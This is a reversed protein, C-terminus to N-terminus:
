SKGSRPSRRPTVKNVDPESLDELQERARRREPGHELGYALWFARIEQDAQDAWTAMSKVAQPRKERHDPGMQPAWADFQEQTTKQFDAVGLSRAPM